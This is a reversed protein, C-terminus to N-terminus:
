FTSFGEQWGLTNIKREHLSFHNQLPHLEPITQITLLADKAKQQSSFVGLLRTDEHGDDFECVYYLYHLTELRKRQASNQDILETLQLNYISDIQYEFIHFGELHDKFGDLNKYKELTELADKKSYFVGIHKMDEHAQRCEAKDFKRIHCLVQVKNM